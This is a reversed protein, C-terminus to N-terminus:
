IHIVEWGESELVDGVVKRHCKQPDREACLIVAEGLHRNVIEKLRDLADRFNKTQSYRRFNSVSMKGYQLGGLEKHLSSDYLISHKALMRSLNGFRSENFHPIKSYNMSRVDIVLTIGRNRLLDIFEEESRTSSGISYLRNKM